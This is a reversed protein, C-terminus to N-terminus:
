LRERLPYAHRAYSFHEIIRGPGNVPLRLFSGQGRNWYRPTMAYEQAVADQIQNFIPFGSAQGLATQVLISEVDRRNKQITATVM